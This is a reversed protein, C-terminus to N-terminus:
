VKKVKFKCKVLKNICIVFIWKCVWKRTQLKNIGLFFYVKKSRNEEVKKGGVKVFNWVYFVNKKLLKMKEEIKNKRRIIFM